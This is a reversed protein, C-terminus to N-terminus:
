STGGDGKDGPCLRDNQGAFQNKVAISKVILLIRPLNLRFLGGIVM